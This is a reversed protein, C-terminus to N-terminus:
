FKEVTYDDSGIVYAHDLGAKIAVRTILRVLWGPLPWTLIDIMPSVLVVKDAIEPHEHIFRLAIHGGMSHALIVLPNAADPQVIKSVFLNLDNLYNNYNKIFGKHRNALMRSSLGQGRWDLSYVDFGRQNLERITEAYKEMFERRGNLLIVSGRKNAKHSYWIGYRIFQNDSTAIFDYVLSKSEQAVSHNQIMISLSLYLIIFKIPVSNIRSKKM